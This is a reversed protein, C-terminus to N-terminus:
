LNLMQVIKMAISEPVVVRENTDDDVVDYRGNEAIVRLNTLPGIPIRAAVESRNVKVFKPADVGVKFGGRNSRGCVRVTISKAIQIAENDHRTIVLM